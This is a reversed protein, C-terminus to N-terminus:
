RELLEDLEQYTLLALVDRLLKRFSRSEKALKRFDLHRTLRLQDTTEKYVQGIAHSMEGKADRRAEPNSCTYDSDWSYEPASSRLHDIQSLFWTEYERPCLIIRVPRMFRAELAARREEVEEIEVKPCGDDLDLSVIVGSVEPRMGAEVYRELQGLKKLRKWNGVKIPHPAFVPTGLEATARSILAPLAAQDGPGEVIIAYTTM